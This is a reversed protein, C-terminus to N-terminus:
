FGTERWILAVMSKVFRWGPAEWSGAIVVKGRWQQAALSAIPDQVTLIVRYVSREPVWAAHSPRALVTGGQHTALRDDPLQRTADRDINTVTLAPFEGAQSDAYFRASDGVSVRHVESEDLYTEM